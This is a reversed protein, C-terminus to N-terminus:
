ANERNTNNRHGSVAIGIIAAVGFARQSVAQKQPIKTTWNIWVVLDAGQCPQTRSVCSEGFTTTRKV